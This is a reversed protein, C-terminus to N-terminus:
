VSGEPLHRQRRARSPRRRSPRVWYMADYGGRLWAKWVSRPYFPALGDRGIELPDGHAPSWSSPILTFAAEMGLEAVVETATLSISDPTGFPYAFLRIPRGTWDELRRQDDDVERRIVHPDRIQGLSYHHVTHGGVEFLGHRGLDHVQSATLFRVPRTRRLQRRAFNAAESGRLGVLGSSVFFIAPIRLEELIGAAAEHWSAYGDDFTVLLQTRDGVPGKLWDNPGLIEYTETLWELRERFLRVDDIDHFALARKGPPGARLKRARGGARVVINRLRRRIELSRM